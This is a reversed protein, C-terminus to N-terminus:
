VQEGLLESKLVFAGKTVVAEGERLGDLVKVERGNSDGLKVDRVEFVSPERQVFVFKRERDRQIAAEAVVLVNPEPESYVRITAFMEPKLRKDLNPLELRLNMTRTAIDLVDGVYTIKGHFVQNPYANVLVEVRQDEPTPGGSIYPIDKEPINALVWVESLDAVVFLKETTEVVEGKTLNRGIVRGDFPAVIPVFSRISHDGDLQRIQKESMGYLELRDRAERKEAQISLLEGKRRQSEALGIVKEELLMKAREYSQEAVYLKAAAKLYASQAIGLEGSYLLALLDGGKVQQGLDAYVETVRGRVLTTVEALAHQNPTITGPFDRHTRFEKRVIPHAEIGASVVQDSPLRVIGEAPASVPPKPAADGSASFECGSGATMLGGVFCSLIHILRTRRHDERM